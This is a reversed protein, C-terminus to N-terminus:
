FVGTANLRIRQEVKPVHEKAATTNVALVPVLNQLKEFENDMLVMGVQFGGHLNLDMVRVIGAGLQKATRNPMHEATVLNLGRAMSVLFPVGNVFMVDVALTVWQHWELLAHPIQVYNTTVSDPPQRVMGGRVGALNPGFIRHANQVANPTVPCNLIMGSRVMGLFNRDTPHGLMAQAEHVARADEVKRQTYGEMNGHVMQIFSVANALAVMAAKIAGIMTQIFLLVVEAEVDRINFYPMGKSNNKVIINGQNTHILFHGGNRGSDYTVPWIKELVKLPIITAVGGENLWMQNVAGMKSSMEMRGSGMNSHGMLAHEEKKLNALLHPYPTSAFTACTDIYMHHPSLIGHIGRKEWPFHMEKTIVKKERQFMKYNDDASILSHEQVCDEINLNQVGEIQLEPCSM